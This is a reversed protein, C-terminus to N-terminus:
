AAREADRMGFIAGFVLHRRVLGVGLALRVVARAFADPLRATHRGLWSQEGAGYIAAIKRAYGDLPAGDRLFAVVAEAATAGRATAQKVLEAALEKLEIEIAAQM